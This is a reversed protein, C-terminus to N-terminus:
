RGIGCAWRWSFRSSKMSGGLRGLPAEPAVHPGVEDAQELGVPAVRGGGVVVEAEVVQGPEGAAVAGVVGHQRLDLAGALAVEQHALVRRDARGVGLQLPQPQGVSSQSTTRSKERMSDAVQHFSPGSISVPSSRVSSMPVSTNKKGAAACVSFAPVKVLVLRQSCHCWWASSGSPSARLSRHNM